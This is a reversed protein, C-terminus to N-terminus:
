FTDKQFPILMIIINRERWLRRLSEERGWHLLDNLLIRPLSRLKKVVNQLLLKVPKIELRMDSQSSKGSGDSSLKHYFSGALFPSFTNKLEDEEKVKSHVDTTERQFM